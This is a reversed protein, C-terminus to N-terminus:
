SSSVKRMERKPTQNLLCWLCIAGERAVIRDGPKVQVAVEVPIMCMSTCDSNSTADPVHGGAPVYYPGPENYGTPTM